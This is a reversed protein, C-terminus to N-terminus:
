QTVEAVIAGGVWWVDRHRFEYSLLDSGNAEAEHTLM